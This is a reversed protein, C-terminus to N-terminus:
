PMVHLELGLDQYSVNQNRADFRYGISGYMTNPDITSNTQVTEAM